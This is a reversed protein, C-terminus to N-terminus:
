WFTTDPEQDVRVERGEEDLTIWESNWFLDFQSSVEQAIPGVAMVDMDGFGVEEAASFYEDGVNRGGFITVQNDAALAVTALGLLRRVFQLPAVTDHGQRHMERDPTKM